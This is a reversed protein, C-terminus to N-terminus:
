ELIKGYEDAREPLQAQQGIVGCVCCKRTTNRIGGGSLYSTLWLFNSMHAFWTCVMYMDVTLSRRLARLRGGLMLKQHSWIQLATPTEVHM